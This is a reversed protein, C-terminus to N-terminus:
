GEGADGPLPVGGCCPVISPAQEATTKASGQFTAAEEIALQQVVPDTRGHYEYWWWMPHGRLRETAEEYTMPRNDRYSSSRGFFNDIIAFM